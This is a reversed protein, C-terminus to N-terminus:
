ALCLCYKCQYQLHKQMGEKTEKSFLPPCSQDCYGWYGNGPIHELNEDVKTSCWHRDDPDSDTICQQRLIGQFKWPFKCQANKDPSDSTTFCQSDGLFNYNSSKWVKKLM